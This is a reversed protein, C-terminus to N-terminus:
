CELVRIENDHDAFETAIAKFDQALVKFADVMEPDFHRGRGELIINVAKSHPFAPKYVRQTILADYVDAIAM